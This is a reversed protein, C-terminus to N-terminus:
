GEEDRGKGGGEQGEMGEETLPPFSDSASAM